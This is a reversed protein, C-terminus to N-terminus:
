HQLFSSPAAYFLPTPPGLNPLGAVGPLPLGPLGAASPFAQLVFPADRRMRTALLTIVVAMSVVVFVSWLSWKNGCERASLRELAAVLREELSVLRQELIGFARLTM